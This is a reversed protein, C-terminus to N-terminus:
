RPRALEAPPKPRQPPSTFDLNLRQEQAFRVFEWHTAFRRGYRNGLHKLVLQRAQGWWTPMKLLEVLDQTSLRCPLPESTAPLAALAPLPGAAHSVLAAVAAARSRVLPPSADELLLPLTVSVDISRDGPPGPQRLALRGSSYDACVRLTLRKALLSATDRSLFDLLAAASEEVSGVPEPTTAPTRAALLEEIVKACVQEAAAPKMRRALAALGHALPPRANADTEKELDRALLAAAATCAHAAVPEARGAAAALGQALPSRAAANKEKELTRALLAVAVAPEMRGALAALLQALNGGFSDGPMSKELHRALLDAAKACVQAAAAPEMRGAVAVLGNALQVKDITNSAKELHRALLDAAKACVQAAAAPEM